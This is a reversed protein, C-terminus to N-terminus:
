FVELLGNVAVSCCLGIEEGSSLLFAGAQQLGLSYWRVDSRALYGGM